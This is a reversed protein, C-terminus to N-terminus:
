IHILSLNFHSTKGRIAQLSIIFLEVSMVIVVVGSYIKVKNRAELYFMYWAMTWSFIAVSLFFKFPKIWANINMIQREDRTSAIMTAFVGIWCIWGFTYLLKNRKRLESLFKM